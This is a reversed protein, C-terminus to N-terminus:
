SQKATDTSDKEYVGKMYILGEGSVQKGTINIEM